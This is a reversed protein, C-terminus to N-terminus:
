GRSCFCGQNQTEEESQCFGEGGCCFDCNDPGGESPACWNWEGCGRKIIEGRAAFAESAGFAFVGAVAISFLYRLYRTPM